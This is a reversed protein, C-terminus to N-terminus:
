HYGRSITTSYVNRKGSTNGNLDDLNMLKQSPRFNFMTIQANSIQSNFVCFYVVSLGHSDLSINVFHVGLVSWNELFWDEGQYFRSNGISSTWTFSTNTVTTRLCGWEAVLTTLYGLRGKQRREQSRIETWGPKISRRCRIEEWASEYLSFSNRLTQKAFMWSM